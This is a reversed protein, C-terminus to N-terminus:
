RQLLKVAIMIVYVIYSPLLEEEYVGRICRCLIQIYTLLLAFRKRNRSKSQKKLKQDQQKVRHLMILSCSFFAKRWHPSLFTVM